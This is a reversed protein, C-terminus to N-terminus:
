SLAWNRATTSITVFQM